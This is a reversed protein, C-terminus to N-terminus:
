LPADVSRMASTLRAEHKPYEAIAEKLGGLVKRNVIVGHEDCHWVEFELRRTHLVIQSTGERVVPKIRKAMYDVREMILMNVPLEHWLRTTEDYQVIHTTVEGTTTIGISGDSYPADSCRVTTTKFSRGNTTRKRWFRVNESGYSLAM